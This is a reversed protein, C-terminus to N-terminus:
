DHQKETKACGRGPTGALNFGVQHNRKTKPDLKTFRRDARYKAFVWDLTGPAAMLPWPM